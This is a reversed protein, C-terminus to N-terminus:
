RQKAAKVLRTLAMQEAREPVACSRAASPAAVPKYLELAAIEEAPAVQLEQRRRVVQERVDQARDVSKEVGDVLPLHQPV